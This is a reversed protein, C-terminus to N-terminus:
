KREEVVVIANVVRMANVLAALSIEAKTRAEREALLKERLCLPCEVGGASDPTSWLRDHILCKVMM